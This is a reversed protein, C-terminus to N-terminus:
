IWEEEGREEANQEPEGHRGADVMERTKSDRAPDRRRQDNQRKEAHQKPETGPHSRRNARLGRLQAMAKRVRESAGLRPRSRVLVARDAHDDFTHQVTIRRASLM